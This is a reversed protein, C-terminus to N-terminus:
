HAGPLPYNHDPIFATYFALAMMPLANVLCAQTQIHGRTRRRMFSGDPNKQFVQYGYGEGWEDMQLVLPHTEELVARAWEQDCHLYEEREIVEKLWVHLDDEPFRVLFIGAAFPSCGSRATRGKDILLTDAGEERAALASWCGALGGGVVLVDAEVTKDITKKRM